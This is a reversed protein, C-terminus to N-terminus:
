YGGCKSNLRLERRAARLCRDRSASSVDVTDFSREIGLLPVAPPPPPRCQVLARPPFFYPRRRTPAAATFFRGDRARVSCNPLAATREDQPRQQQRQWGRASARQLLAVVLYSNRRGPRACCRLGPGTAEEHRGRAPEQRQRLEGTVPSVSKGLVEGAACRLCVCARARACGDPLLDTGFLAPRRCSTRPPRAASAM